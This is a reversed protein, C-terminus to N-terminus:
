PKVKRNLRGSASLGQNEFTVGLQASLIDSLTKSSGGKPEGPHGFVTSELTQWKENWVYAGGGPCMLKVGWLQEHLNVPDKAPYRRKWENLIPLNNWALRQLRMEDNDRTLIQFLDFFKREAAACLNRGLWPTATAPPPNNTDQAVRAAQRDLARKLMPESLTVILSRPTAAYYVALDRASEATGPSKSKIKVYAQDKYDLNQWTTMGPASQDVFAHVSTLFAALGLPNKVEAHLALPLDFYNTELFADTNTAQKLRDWFPDEDAYVAISQGLWGFPNAKLGPAMNGIFNGADRIPPSQTNVAFVLHLVTNTHPDGADPAIQAGSSFELFHGYETAMILPMVTLDAGLSNRALSFRIAIPDFFQRWNRQYSDRWRQYGDAEARTVRALPLEAIPTMFDLTGYTSSTVGSPTLRFEGADPVNFGPSLIDNAAKGSALEDLHAAQLESMIAAARTRRSDAIRWQPGCWRRITADTLIVLATEAKDARPYRHRFFVYEDQSSLAAAKGKAVRVLTELQTRSNGVLVVNSLSAMYSSVTRDPSVVGVYSVGEVSGKVPKAAASAAQAAKQQAAIYTKLLDSNRAEFLVAVDTGVRLFPDSGTFAVSAIVQPGLLRSLETVGLCLQKQYRTRSGADECRPELLQLVPTGNADAEDMLQTMAQFSPFFIAHQDAPVFAALPDLDPKADKILEKWNMEKVTIGNLNTIDVTDEAAKTTPLVRDLQLNESLARGGTFLDYTDQLESNRGPRGGGFPLGTATDIGSNTRGLEKATALTQHRFWAAGPINRQGLRQYHALKAEFFGTRAEPRAEAPAVKFKVQVMGNLDTRPLNLRGTIEAGKPARISLTASEFVPPMWPMDGGPNGIYVEGQGDLVAYPQTAPLLQWRSGSWSRGPEPLTGETLKLGSVPVQYYADEARAVDQAVPIVSCLVLQLCRTIKMIILSFRDHRRPHFPDKGNM